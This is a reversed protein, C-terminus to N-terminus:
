YKRTSLIKTLDIKKYQSSQIELHQEINEKTVTTGFDAPVTVNHDQFLRAM